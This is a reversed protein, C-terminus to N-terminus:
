SEELIKHAEVWLGHIGEYLEPHALIEIADAKEKETPPALVGTNLWMRRMWREWVPRPTLRTTKPLDSM